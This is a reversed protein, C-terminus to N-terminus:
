GGRTLMGNPPNRFFDRILVSASQSISPGSKDQLTGACQSKRPMTPDDCLHRPVAEGACHFGCDRIAARVASLSTKAPDYALTTFGSVPNTTVRSVGPVLRLQKEIGHAGLVSFLNGVELTGFKIM